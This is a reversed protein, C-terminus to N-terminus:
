KRGSYKEPREYCTDLTDRIERLEELHSIMKLANGKVCKERLTKVVLDDNVISHYMERYAVWEKKFRPYSAYRGDFV